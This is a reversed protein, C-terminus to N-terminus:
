IDSTVYYYSYICILYRVQLNLPDSIGVMKIKDLIPDLRRDILVHKESDLSQTKNENGRRVSCWWAGWCGM